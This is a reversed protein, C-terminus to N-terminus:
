RNATPFHEMTIKRFGDRQFATSDRRQLELAESAWNLLEWRKVGLPFALGLEVAKLILADVEKLGASPLAM